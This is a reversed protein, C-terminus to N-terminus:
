DALLLSSAFCRCESKPLPSANAPFAIAAASATLDVRTIRSLPVRTNTSTSDVNMLLVSERRSRDMIQLVMQGFQSAAKILTMAILPLL